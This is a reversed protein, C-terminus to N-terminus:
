GCDAEAIDSLMNRYNVLKFKGGAATLYRTWFDRVAAGRPTRVDAGVVVICVGRLDPVVQEKVHAAIWDSDPLPRAGEMNLERTANLMDSLILLTVRRNGAGHAYDAARFLTGLVDTSQIERARKADFFTAATQHADDRFDAARRRDSATTDPWRHLPAVSDEWQRAAEHSGQYMEIVAIKDGNGIRDIAEDLLAHSERLEAPTRSGSIDVAAILLTNPAPRVGPTSAESKACGMAAFVAGIACAVGTVRVSRTIFHSRM